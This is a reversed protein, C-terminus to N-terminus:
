AVRRLSYSGARHRPRAKVSRTYGQFAGCPGVLRGELIERKLQVVDNCIEYFTVTTTSTPDQMGAAFQRHAGQLAEVTRDLYDEIKDRSRPQEIARSAVWAALTEDRDPVQGGQLLELVAEVSGMHKNIIAQIHAALCCREQDTM